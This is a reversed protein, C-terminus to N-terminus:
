LAVEWFWGSMRGNELFEMVSYRGGLWCIIIGGRGAKSSGYEWVMWGGLLEYVCGM